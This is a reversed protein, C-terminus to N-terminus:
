VDVVTGDDCVLLELGLAAAEREISSSAARVEASLHALLVRRVGLAPLLARLEEWSLHRREGGSSQLGSCEACLLAAGESLGALGEHAGTDGTFAVPGIRLSLAVHPPRMHQARHARVTRGALVATSGPELERYDIPFGLPRTATDAYCAAWLAQLRDRTGPPGTVLLPRSRRARHQADLVLFPWGAIHDGHLHTFHVADLEQAPDRGLRRLFALATAGFDVMAAGHEDDILWCTHGRGAGHFADASGVCTVKV